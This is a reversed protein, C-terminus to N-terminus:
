VPIIDLFEDHKEEKFLLNKKINEVSLGLILSWDTTIFM